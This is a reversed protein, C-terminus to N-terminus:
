KINALSSATSEMYVSYVIATKQIDAVCRRGQLCLLRSLYPDVSTLSSAEQTYLMQGQCVSPEAHRWIQVPMM